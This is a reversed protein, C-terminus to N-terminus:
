SSTTKKKNALGVVVCRNDARECIQKIQRKGAVITIRATPELARIQAAVAKARNLSLSYDNSFVDDPQVYGVVVYSCGPRTVKRIAARDATSVNFKYVDFTVSVQRSRSLSCKPMAQSRIRMTITSMASQGKSDTLRYYITTDGVYGPMPVFQVEDGVVTWTGVNPDTFTKVWSAGTWIVLSGPQVKGGKSAISQPIPTVVGGTPGIVREQPKVRMNDLDAPLPAPVPMEGTGRSGESSDTVRQPGPPTPVAAPTAAPGPDEAPAGGGGCENQAGNGFCGNNSQPRYPTDSRGVGGAPVVASRKPNSPLWRQMWEGNPGTKQVVGFEVDYKGAIVSPFSYNGNADTMTEAILEGTKPNILRVPANPQVTGHVPTDWDRTTSGQLAGTACSTAVMSGGSAVGSKTQTAITPGAATITSTVPIDVAPHRGPKVLGVDCTTPYLQVCLQPADSTYIVEATMQAASLVEGGKDKAIIYFTPKTGSDAVALSTLDLEATYITKGAGNVGATGTSTVDRMSWTIGGSVPVVPPSAGNKVTLKMDTATISTDVWRLKLKQWARVRGEETCSMRPVLETYPIKIQANPYCTILNEPVEGIGDNDTNRLICPKETDPDPTVAYINMSSNLYAGNAVLKAGTQDSTCFNGLTYDWCVVDGPMGVGASGDVELPFLMKNNKIAWEGVQLGRWSGMKSPGGLGNLWTVFAAPPSAAAGAPTICKNAALSEFACFMQVAGSANLVPFPPIHNDPTTLNIASDKQAIAGAAVATSTVDATTKAFTFTTSSPVSAVAYIGDFTGDVGAVRVSNGVSFGHAASTTITAVNSALAKNTVTRVANSTDCTGGTAPDFCGLYWGNIYYVKGDPAVSIDSYGSASGVSPLPWGNTGTVTCNAQTLFDFCHLKRNVTDVFWIKETTQAFQAASTIGGIVDSATGSRGTNPAGGTLVPTVPIYPTACLAPSSPTALDLCAMGITDTTKNHVVQYYKKTATSYAGYSNHPSRYPGKIAFVTTHSAPNYIQYTSTNINTWACKAGTAREHCEVTVYGADLHHHSNLIFDPSFAVNYGDLGATAQTKIPQVMEGANTRSSIQFGSSDLGYSKVDGAARIGIASSLPTPATNTWTTGNTTYQVTFLEPAVISGANAAADVNWNIAITSDTQGVMSIPATTTADFLTAAAANSTNSGTQAVTFTPDTAVATSPPQWFVLIGAVTALVATVAVSTTRLRATIM